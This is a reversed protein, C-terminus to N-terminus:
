YLSIFVNWVVYLVAAWVESGQSLLVILGMGQAWLYFGQVCVWHCRGARDEKGLRGRVICSALCHVFQFWCNERKPESLFGKDVVAATLSTICLVECAADQLVLAM